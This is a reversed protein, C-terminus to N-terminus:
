VRSFCVKAVGQGLSAIRSFAGSSLDLIRGGHYPGRDSIVLNVSKGNAPNVVRIKTGMPLSPHATTMADPNMPRGNAMTRWAFGDGYGYHSAYGCSSKAEVAAPAFAGLAISASLLITKLVQKSFYHALAVLRGAAFGVNGCNQKGNSGRNRAISELCTPGPVETRSECPLGHPHVTSFPLAREHPNAPREHNAQLAEM